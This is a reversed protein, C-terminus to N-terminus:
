GLRAVKKADFKSMSQARRPIVKQTEHMVKELMFNTNIKTQFNIDNNINKRYRKRERVCGALGEFVNTNVISKLSKIM